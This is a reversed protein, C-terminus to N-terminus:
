RYQKTQGIYVKGNVTNTIKYIVFDDKELFASDKKLKALRDQITKHLFLIDNMEKNIDTM